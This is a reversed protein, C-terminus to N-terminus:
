KGLSELFEKNDKTENLRQLILETRENSGLMDIMRILTRIKEFKEKGIMLHDMRTGSKQIDIAPYIRREALARSLHLEMNGTGKFEEYILEDMKSGTEVLATGIITLSGTKSEGMSQFDEFNRAAGFFRKPPYLAAPDFGGSLTRGSTPIALNYARALRTISDLLIIVDNGMEVLRKARELALEAVKVQREPSEDFNSAAVEGKISRAFDTVEEPREGVLVAMLFVDKYNDTIGNAIEKMITTKGAKPPSVIMGRQGRGIPAILDIIRAVMDEKKTELLLQKNPYVPTLRDFDPRFGVKGVEVGNIHTVQLLGWYREGEKPKRAPGRVQDGIRIGFRRIQSTSIYIDRDSINYKDKLLGHGNSESELFGEVEETPLNADPIMYSDTRGSYSSTRNIPSSIKSSVVNQRPIVRSVPRSSTNRTGVVRRTPNPMLRMTGPTSSLDEKKIIRRVEKTETKTEMKDEGIIQNIQDDSKKKVIPM